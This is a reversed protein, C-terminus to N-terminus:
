DSVAVLIEVPLGWMKMMIEEQIVFGADRLIPAARIPRCDVLRPMVRHAWEYLKVPWTDRDPKHLSVACLRGGPRLLRHCGAAVVPLEPSDFLELAFSVFVADLGGRGDHGLSDLSALLAEISSDTPPSDPPDRPASPLALAAADGTFLSVREMLGARQLRRTAIAKMGESLDLGYVHGEPGVATALAELCHGTGFGLELISEGPSAAFARLGAERFRKESPGVFWDYWRSLRNYNARAEAKSRTVRSIASM